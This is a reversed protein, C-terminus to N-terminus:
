FIISQGHTEIFETATFSFLCISVSYFDDRTPFLYRFITVNDGPCILLGFDLRISVASQVFGFVQLFKLWLHILADWIIFQLVPRVACCIELDTNCLWM